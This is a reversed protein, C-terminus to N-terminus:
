RVAEEVEVEVEACGRAAAVREAEERLLGKPLRRLPEVELRLRKRDKRPRWLGALRGELLVAGPSGVPRWLRKAVAPDSVLVQRDPMTLLPDAPALLRLGEARPPRRLLELDSELVFGDGAPALEAEVSVWAERAQERGMGTWASLGAPTSPGFAHLFRRVLDAQAGPASSATRGLWQETRGLLGSRSTFM